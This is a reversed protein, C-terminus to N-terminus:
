APNLDLQFKALLSLHDSPFISNPLGRMSWLDDESLLSLCGILELGGAVHVGANQNSTSNCKATYFIYDVTAGVDSHLTTVESHGSGQVIHKYVSSLNLGHRLRKVNFMSKRSAEPTNDTVGPILELDAPRVCAAPCFRLQRLFDHNYPLKGSEQSQSHPMEQATTYQCTDTIGLSDPWLPAFLKHYYAKFSMDEQGSIMSATLGQYFLQGTTILQYLPMHPVSNFDGCLIVDCHQGRAKCSKVTRDIEALMIALQALKVDGRRPNFLLHTNAVCLAPGKAQVESGKTVVPQLLLVIGVNDRDLLVTEPRFFELLSASLESFRDGRYCTACGDSKTGTRRKYVCTYGMQSLVPHLQEKYHNEQVEQLCLIDPTWKLIEETILYYRYSWDLVELPCHSYLEQNADLLDQALINYSMVSFDFLAKNDPFSRQSPEVAAPREGVEEWLRWIVEFPQSRPYYSMAPFTLLPCHVAETLGHGVPFHWGTQVSSEKPQTESLLSALDLQPTPSIVEEVMVNTGAIIYEDWCETEAVAQQDPTKSEEMTHTQEETPCTTEPLSDEASMSQLYALLYEPPRIIDTPAITGNEVNFKMQLEEHDIAVEQDEQMPAEESDEQDKQQGDSMEAEKEPKKLTPENKTQEHLVASPQEEDLDPRKRDEKERGQEEPGEGTQGRPWQDLPTMESKTFTRALVGGGGNCLAKGDVPSLPKKSAQNHTNEAEM